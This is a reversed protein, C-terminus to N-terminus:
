GFPTVASGTILVSENSISDLAAALFAEEDVGVCMDAFSPLDFPSSSTQTHVSNLWADWHNGLTQTQMSSSPSVHPWTASQLGVSHSTPLFTENPTGIRCAGSDNGPPQSQRPSLITSIPSLHPIVNQVPGLEDNQIQYLTQFAGCDTRLLSDTAPPPPPTDLVRQGGCSSNWHAPTDHTAAAVNTKVIVDTQLAVHEFSNLLSTQVGEDMLGLSFIDAASCMTDVNMSESLSGSCANGFPEYLTDTDLPLSALMTRDRAEEMGLADLGTDTFDSVLTPCPFNTEVSADCFLSGIFASIDDEDTGTNVSVSGGTIDVTDQAFSNTETQTSCEAMSTAGGYQSAFELRMVAGGSQDSALNYNRQEPPTGTLAQLLNLPVTPSFHGYTAASPEVKFGRFQEHKCSVDMTVPLVLIPVMLTPQTVSPLLTSPPVANNVDPSAYLTPMRHTLSPVISVLPARGDSSRKEDHKSRRVSRNVPRHGSRRFHQDLHKKFSYSRMTRMQIIEAHPCEPLAICSFAPLQFATWTCLRVQKLRSSTSFGAGFGINHKCPVIPCHYVYTVQNKQKTFFALDADNKLIKHTKVHHARLNARTKVTLGCFECCYTPLPIELLEDEAIVIHQEPKSPAALM